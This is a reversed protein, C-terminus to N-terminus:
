VLCKERTCIEYNQSQFVLQLIVSSPNYKNESNKGVLLNHLVQHPSGKPHQKLVDDNGVKKVILALNMTTAVFGENNLREIKKLTTDLVQAYQLKNRRRRRKDRKGGKKDLLRPVAAWFAALNSPSLFNLYKHTTDLAEELTKYESTRWIRGDRKRRASSIFRSQPSRPILHNLVMCRFQATMLADTTSSSGRFNIRCLGAADVVYPLM